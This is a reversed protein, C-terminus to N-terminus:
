SDIIGKGSDSCSASASQHASHESYQSNKKIKRIFIIHSPGAHLKLQHDFRSVLPETPIVNCISMSYSYHLLVHGLEANLNGTM